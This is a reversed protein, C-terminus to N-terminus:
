ETDGVKDFFYNHGDVYGDINTIDNDVLAHLYGQMNGYAEDMSMDKDSYAETIRDIYEKTNVNIM